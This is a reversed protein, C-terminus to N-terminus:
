FNQAIKNPDFSINFSSEADLYGVDWYDTQYHSNIQEGTVALPYKFGKFEGWKEIKIMNYEKNDGSVYYKVPLNHEDLEFRSIFKENVFMDFANGGPLTVKINDGGIALLKVNKMFFNDYWKLYNTVSAPMMM